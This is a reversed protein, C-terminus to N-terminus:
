FKVNSTEPYRLTEEQYKPSKYKMKESKTSSPYNSPQNSVQIIDTFAEQIKKVEENKV